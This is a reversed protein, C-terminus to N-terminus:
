VTQNYKKGMHLKQFAEHNAPRQVVDDDRQAISSALSLADDNSKSCHRTVHGLCTGHVM